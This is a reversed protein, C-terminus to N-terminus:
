GQAVRASGLNIPNYGGGMGLCPHLPLRSEFGRGKAQFALARALQAVGAHGESHFTAEAKPLPEKQRATHQHLPYSEFRHLGFDVPKCGAGM